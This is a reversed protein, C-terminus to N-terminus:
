RKKRGAGGGVVKPPPAPPQVRIIPTNRPLTHDKPCRWRMGGDQGVILVRQLPQLGEGACAPDPCVASPIRAVQKEGKVKGGAKKAM